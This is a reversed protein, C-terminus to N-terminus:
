YQYALIPLKLFSCLQRNYVSGIEQDERINKHLKQQTFGTLNTTNTFPNAKDQIEKQEIALPIQHYLIKKLELDPLACLLVSRRATWYYGSFCISNAKVTQQM